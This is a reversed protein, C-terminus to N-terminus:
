TANPKQPTLMKNSCRLNLRDSLHRCHRNCGISYRNVFKHIIFIILINCMIKDATTKKHLGGQGIPLCESVPRNLHLTNCIWCRYEVALLGTWIGIFLKVCRLKVAGPTALRHRNALPKQQNQWFAIFIFISASIARFRNPSFNILM